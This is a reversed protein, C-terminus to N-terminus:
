HGNQEYNRLLLMNESYETDVLKKYFKTDATVFECNLQIALALYYSDYIPEEFELSIKIAQDAVVKNWKHILIQYNDLSENIIPLEEDTFLKSYILANVVEYRLLEPANLKINGEIYDDRIDHAYNSYTENVFWKVLISADLM